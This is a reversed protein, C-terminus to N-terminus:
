PWPPKFTTIYEALQAVQSQTLTGDAGYAPMVITLPPPQSRGFHIPVANERADKTGYLSLGNGAGEGSKGHCASCTLVYLEAVRPLQSPTIKQPVYKFTRPPADGAVAPSTLFAMSLLFVFM